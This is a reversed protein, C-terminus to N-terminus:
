AAMSGAMSSVPVGSSVGEVSDGTVVHASVVAASSSPTLECSAEGSAWRLGCWLLELSVNLGDWVSCWCVEVLDSGEGDLLLLVILLTVFTATICCDDRGGVMVVLDRVWFGRCLLEAVWM